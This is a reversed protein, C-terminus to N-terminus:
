IGFLFCFNTDFFHFNVRYFGSHDFSRPFSLFLPIDICKIIWYPNYIIMCLWSKSPRCPRRKWMYVSSLTTEPSPNDRTGSVMYCPGLLKGEERRFGNKHHWAFSVGFFRSSVVSCCEKHNAQPRNFLGIAYCCLVFSTPKRAFFWSTVSM